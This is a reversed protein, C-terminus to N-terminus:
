HELHLIGGHQLDPQGRDGEKGDPNLPLYQQLAMIGFSIAFMVANFALMTVIYQKWDQSRGTLPGGVVQFLRNLAGAAGASPADPEMAWKMYRGLPWSLLATGGVILVVFLFAYGFM